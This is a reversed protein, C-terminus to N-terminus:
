GCSESIELYYYIDKEIIDLGDEVSSLKVQESDVGQESKDLTLSEMDLKYKVDTQGSKIDDFSFHINLKGSSVSEGTEIIDGSDGSIINQSQGAEFDWELFVGMNEGIGVESTVVDRLEELKSIIFEMNISNNVFEAIFNKYNKIKM